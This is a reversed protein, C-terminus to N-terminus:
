TPSRPLLRRDGHRARRRIARARVDEKEFFATEVRDMRAIGAKYLVRPAVHQARKDRSARARRGLRRVVMHITGTDVKADMAKIGIELDRLYGARTVSSVRVDLEEVYPRLYPETLYQGLPLSPDIGDTRRLFGFFQELRKRIERRTDPAWHAGSGDIGFMDEAPEVAARWMAQWGDPWDDFGLGLRATRNM